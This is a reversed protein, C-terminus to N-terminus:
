LIPCVDFEDIGICQGEGCEMAVGHKRKIDIEDM